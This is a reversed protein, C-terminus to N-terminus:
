ALDLGAARLYHHMAIYLCVAMFCLRQMVGIGRSQKQVDSVLVYNLLSYPFPGLRLLAVVKWAGALEVARLTVALGHRKPSRELFRVVRDHFVYRCSTNYSCQLHCLKASLTCLM